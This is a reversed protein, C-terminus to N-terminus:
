SVKKKAKRKTTKKASKKHQRRNKQHIQDLQRKMDLINDPEEEAEAAQHVNLGEIKEGPYVNEIWDALNVAPPPLMQFAGKLDEDALLLPNTQMVIHLRMYQNALEEIKM